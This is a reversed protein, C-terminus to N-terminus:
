PKLACIYTWTDIHSGGPLETDNVNVRRVMMITDDEAIDWLEDVTPRVRPASKDYRTSWKSDGTAAAMQASMTLVEDRYMVPEALDTLRRLQAEKAGIRQYSKWGQWLPGALAAGALLLLIVCRKATFLAAIRANGNSIHKTQKSARRHRKMSLDEIVAEYPEAVAPFSQPAKQVRM